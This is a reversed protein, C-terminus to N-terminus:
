NQRSEPRNRNQKRSYRTDGWKRETRRTRHGERGNERDRKLPLRDRHRGTENWKPKGKERRKM